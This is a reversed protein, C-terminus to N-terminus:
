CLEPGLPRRQHEPQTVKPSLEICFYERLQTLPQRLKLREPYAQGAHHLACGLLCRSEAAPM